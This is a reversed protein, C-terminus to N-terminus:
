EWEDLNESDKLRAADPDLTNYAADSLKIM